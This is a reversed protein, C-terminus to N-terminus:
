FRAPRVAPQSRKVSLEQVLAAHKLSLEKLQSELLDLRQVSPDVFFLAYAGLFGASVLLAVLTPWDRFWAFLGATIVTESFLCIFTLMRARVIKM